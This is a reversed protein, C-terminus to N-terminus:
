HCKGIGVSKKWGINVTLVAMKQGVGPLKCLEEVTQPIDGNYQAALITATRKIYSAKKEL